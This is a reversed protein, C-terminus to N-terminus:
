VSTIVTEVRAWHGPSVERLPPPELDLASVAAATPLSVRRDDGLVPASGILLRTYPHVPGDFIEAARASEVIKGRHMVAIRDCMHRIVALDHSIMLFTLGLQQQLRSLLNLIQAQVSVDLASTPEDLVILDPHLALARAIGIRQRQGGSFEHPYRHIHDPKLGVLDLLELVRQRLASGRAVNHIVLPEGIIRRVTFRPNLSSYPDQFVIQARARFRRLGKGRLTLVDSGYFSVVGATPEILRLVCRAVTTKGSGSEGVLGFSEGKRIEFDVGSVARVRGVARGLLGSHLPFDKELGVVRLLPDIGADAGGQDTM